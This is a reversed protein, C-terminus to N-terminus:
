QRRVPPQCPRGRGPHSGVRAGTGKKLMADVRTKLEAEVQASMVKGDLIQM